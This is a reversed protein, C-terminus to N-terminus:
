KSTQIDHDSESETATSFTVKSDESSGIIGLSEPDCLSTQYQTNIQSSESAQLPAQTIESSGPKTDNVQSLTAPTETSCTADEDL